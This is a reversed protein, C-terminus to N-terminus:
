VPQTQNTGTPASATTPQPGKNATQTTNAPPQRSSRSFTCALALFFGILIFAWNIWAFALTANVINVVFCSPYQSGCSIGGGTVSTFLAAGILWFIMSIFIMVVQAAWAGDSELTMLMLLVIGSLIGWASCFILYRTRPRIVGGFGIFLRNIEWVLDSALGIEVIAFIVTLVLIAIYFGKLANGAM